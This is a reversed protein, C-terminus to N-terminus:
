HGFRFDVGASMQLNAQDQNFFWTQLYDATARLAIHQTLEYDAGAGASLALSWQNTRLHPDSSTTDTTPDPSWIKGKGESLASSRAEPGQKALASSPASYIANKTAAYPRLNARAGGMEVRVFPQLARRARYTFQPGALLTGVAPHFSTTANTGPTTYSWQAIGASLEIIGAFWATKNEQLSARAGNTWLSSFTPTGGSAAAAADADQQLLNADLLAGSYGIFSEWNSYDPVYQQASAAGAAVACFILLLTAKVLAGSHAAEPGVPVIWGEM